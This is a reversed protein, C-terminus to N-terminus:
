CGGVTCSDEAPLPCACLHEVDEDGGEFCSSLRALLFPHSIQLSVPCGGGCCEAFTRQLDVLTLLWLASFCVSGAALHPCSGGASAFFFSIMAIGFTIKLM